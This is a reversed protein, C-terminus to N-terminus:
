ELFPDGCADLDIGRDSAKVAPVAFITDITFQAQHDLGSALSGRSQLLGDKPTMGVILWLDHYKVTAASVWSVRMPNTFVRRFILRHELTWHM